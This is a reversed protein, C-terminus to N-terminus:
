AGAPRAGVAAAGAFLSQGIASLSECTLINPDIESWARRCAHKYANFATIRAAQIAEQLDALLKQHNSAAAEWEKRLDSQIEWLADQYRQSAEHYVQRADEGSARSLASWYDHLVEDARRRADLQAKWLRQQQDRYAAAFRNQAEEQGKQLAQNLSQGAEWFREHPAKAAELPQAPRSAQEPQAAPADSKKAPKPDAM